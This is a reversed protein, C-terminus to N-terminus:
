GLLGDIVTVIPLQKALEENESWLKEIAAKGRVISDVGLKRAFRDPTRTYSKGATGTTVQLNQLETAGEIRFRGGQQCLAVCRGYGKSALIRCDTGLLVAVPVIPTNDTVKVAKGIVGKPLGKLGVPEKPTADAKDTKNGM